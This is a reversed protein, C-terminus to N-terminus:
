KCRQKDDRGKLECPGFTDTQHKHKGNSATGDNGRDDAEHNDVLSEALMFVGPLRHMEETDPGVGFYTELKM